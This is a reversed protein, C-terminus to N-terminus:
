QRTNLNTPGTRFIYVVSPPNLFVQSTALWWEINGGIFGTVNAVIKSGINAQRTVSGSVTVLAQSLTDVSATIGELEGITTGNGGTTQIGAAINIQIRTTRLCHIFSDFKNQFNM